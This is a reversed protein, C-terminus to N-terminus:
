YLDKKILKDSYSTSLLKKLNDVDAYKSLTSDNEVMNLFIRLYAKESGHLGDVTESDTAGLVALDTFDYVKVNYKSAVSDVKAPLDILYQYDKKRAYMKELVAHAYPPLFPIVHINRDKCVQLIRDFEKLAEPNVEEGHQFRIIGKDIKEFTYKFQYDESKEPHNIYLGYHYSGDQLFGDGNLIAGLGIQGNKVKLDLPVKKSYLDGWIRRSQYFVYYLTSYGDAYDSDFNNEAMNDFNENFFYQDMGLIIVKPQKSIPVKELFYRFQKILAVGAGANYFTHPDKFLFSRFLLVRSTGLALVEPERKLTTNLKIYKIPNTYALGIVSVKQHNDFLDHTPM